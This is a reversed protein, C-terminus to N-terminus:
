PEGLLAAIEAGLRNRAEALEATLRAIEAQLQQTEAGVDALWKDAIAHCNEHWPEGRRDRTFVTGAGIEGGCGSCTQRLASTLRAM